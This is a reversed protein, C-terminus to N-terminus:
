GRSGVKKKPGLDPQVNTFIEVKDHVTLGLEQKADPLRTKRVDLLVRDSKMARRVYRKALTEERRKIEREWVTLMAEKAKLDAKRPRGGRNGKKGGRSYKNGKEFKAM